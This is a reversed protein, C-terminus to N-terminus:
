KGGMKRRRMGAVKGNGNRRKKKADSTTGGSEDGEEESASTSAVPESQTRRSRAVPAPPPVSASTNDASRVGSVASVAATIVKVPWLTSWSPPLALHSLPTLSGDEEPQCSPNILNRFNGEGHGEGSVVFVERDVVILDLSGARDSGEILPVRVKRRKEEKAPPTPVSSGPTVERSGGKLQKRREARNPTPTGTPSEISDTAQAGVAQQYATEISSEDIQAVKGARGLGLADSVGAARMAASRFYDIRAVDRRHNLRLILYHVATSLAVLFLVVEVISPRYRAYYYGTGRWRPV